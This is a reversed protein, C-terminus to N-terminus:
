QNVHISFIECNYIQSHSKIRSFHSFLDRVFSVLQLAPVRLWLFVACAFLIQFLGSNVVLVIESSSFHKHVIQGLVILKTGGGGGWGVGGTGWRGMLSM